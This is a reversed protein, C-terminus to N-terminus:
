AHNDDDGDGGIFPIVFWKKFRRPVDPLDDIFVGYGFWYYSESPAYIMLLLGMWFHHLFDLSAKVLWQRPADLTLFWDTQQVMQDLQKGFARAFTFGILFWTAAFLTQPIPLPINLM